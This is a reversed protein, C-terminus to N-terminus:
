EGTRVDSISRHSLLLSAARKERETFGVACIM